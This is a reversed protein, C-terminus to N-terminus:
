NHMFFAFADTRMTAGMNRIHVTNGQNDAIYASTYDGSNVWGMFVFTHTPYGAWDGTTFCISGVTVKKIDYTSVWGQQRLYSLYQRTNCTALPVSVGIRRMAESSFYVCTNTPNGGHLAVAANLVSSVNTASSLYASLQAGNATQNPMLSAEIKALKDEAEKALKAEAEKVLKAEAEKVLKDEAEKVLKDEAEKVLKDEAEKVLKDEAEKALKDEAEKALKAEAEKALKDEAEKALKAEAEKALKAEAEKAVSDVEVKPLRDVEVQALEAAKVKEAKDSAAKAIRYDKAIKAQKTKDARVAAIRAIEEQIAKDAAIKATKSDELQKVKDAAIKKLKDTEAQKALEEEKAKEIVLADAKEKAIRAETAKFKVTEQSIEDKSLVYVNNKSQEEAKSTIIWAFTSLLVLGTLAIIIIRRTTKKSKAKTKTRRRM